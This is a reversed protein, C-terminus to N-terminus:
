SAASSSPASRAERAAGSRLGAYELATLVAVAAAQGVVVLVGLMTPRLPSDFALALSALVWLANGIVVTWVMAPARHRRTCLWGLGAAFVVLFLGVPRLLAGPLGLLPALPTAAAALLAGLAGSALADAALARRLLDPRDPRLTM